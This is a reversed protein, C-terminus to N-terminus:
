LLQHASIAPPMDLIAMTYKKKDGWSFDAVLSNTTGMGNALPRIKILVTRSSNAPLTLSSPYAEDAIVDPPLQLNLTGSVTHPYTNEVTIRLNYDQVEAQIDIRDGFYEELFVRDLLLLELANRYLAPGMMKGQGLVAVERRDMIAQWMLDRTLKEGKKIFLVMSPILDGEM